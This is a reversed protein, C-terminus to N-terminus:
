KERNEKSTEKMAQFFLDTRRDQSITGEELDMLEIARQYAEDSVGVHFRLQDEGEGSELVVHHSNKEEQM